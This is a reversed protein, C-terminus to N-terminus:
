ASELRDRVWRAIETHDAQPPLAEAAKSWLGVADEGLADPCGLAEALGVAIRMDKLMLRLGFGSDYTKTLIFKPLKNLSSASQGSSSNVVSLMVAPDLGFREGTQVAACTALLHTASLLNNLAKLAHGSGVDGVRTVEGLPSLVPTVRAIDAPDGGAMITLSGTRARAVGGSVPADILVVGREALSTALAKTRLPESSSMDVVVADSGLAGLLRDDSMVQEVVGSDPLMLIVVGVGTALEALREVAVGGAAALRRRAQEDVDYGRVSFGAAILHETMPTGMNGLGVFGVQTVPSAETV